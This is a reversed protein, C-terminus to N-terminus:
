TELFAVLVESRSHVAHLFSVNARNTFRSLHLSIPSHVRLLWITVVRAVSVDSRM